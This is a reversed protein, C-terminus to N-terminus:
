IIISPNYYQAFLPDSLLNRKVYEDVALMMTPYLKAFYRLYSDNTSGLFKKAEEPL